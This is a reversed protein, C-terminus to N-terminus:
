DAARVAPLPPVSSLYAAVARRDEDTLHATNHDIVEGMSGGVFDGDPLMGDQLFYEVDAATWKGIGTDRDPTINPVEEDDPGQPNGALELDHNLVGVANRSTHCEGCHGLHRVLYAGRAVLPDDFADAAFPEPEFLLWQWVRMTIRNLYWPLEHPRNPARMPPLQELYAKMDGLDADSIGAYAVYPFAPYYADHTPRKGERMARNFAEQTWEGIGTASDPTINPAYFTGFPSVLPRGGSLDDSRETPGLHCAICGGAHVLYAGRTADAGVASGAVFTLCWVLM